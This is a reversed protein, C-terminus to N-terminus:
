GDVRIRDSIQHCGAGAPRLSWAEIRETLNTAATKNM